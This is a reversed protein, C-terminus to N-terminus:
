KKRKNEAFRLAALIKKPLETNDYIGTFNEAGPGFAFVPVVVATHDKTSFSLKVSRTKMDGGTITVGGTEHDATVVVLTHGDKEAFNLAVGIAKDLDLTEDILTDASNAHGAWDIQSGEVMLFFGKKNRSLIDITKATSAPLMDGRGKLRYPPQGPYTLGALKGSGSKLVMALDTAIDYGKAKLSDILNHKDSRNAFHDYGGGIFVDVDTKLFDSAIDEYSGRSSQHAIFSAPTAHTVSSTAVVGTALGNEEAVARVSAVPIGFEDVGIAGNKTKTGSAIATGAAGSDTIYANASYTKQFGTVPFREFNLPVPSASMAAYVAPIGMGDGIFLIVNKVDPNRKGNLQKSPYCSLLGASMILLILIKTAKNM